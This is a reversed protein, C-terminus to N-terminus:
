PVYELRFFGASNTPVIYQSGFANTSSLLGVSWNQWPAGIEPKYELQYNDYPAL